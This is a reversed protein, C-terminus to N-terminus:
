ARDESWRFALMTVLGMGIAFNILNEAVPQTLPEQNLKLSAVILVVTVFGSIWFLIEFILRESKPTM